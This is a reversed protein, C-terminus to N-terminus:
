RLGGCEAETQELKRSIDELDEELDFIWKANVAPEVAPLSFFQRANFLERRTARLNDYLITFQNKCSRADVTAFESRTGWPRIIDYTTFLAALTILFLM